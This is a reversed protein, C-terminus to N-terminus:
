NGSAGHWWDPDLTRLLNFEGETDWVKEYKGMKMIDLEKAKISNYKDNLDGSIKVRENIHRALIARDMNPIFYYDGSDTLLVFVREVAAMPDEAGVPCTKGQTVCTFGQISGELSKEAAFGAIPALVMMTVLMITLVTKKMKKKRRLMSNMM